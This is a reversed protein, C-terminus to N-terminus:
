CSLYWLQRSTPFDFLRSLIMLTEVPLLYFGHFTGECCRKAWEESKYIKYYKYIRGMLQTSTQSNQKAFLLLSFYIWCGLEFLQKCKKQPFFSALDEQLTPTYPCVLQTVASVALCALHLVLRLWEPASWTKQAGLVRVEGLFSSLTPESNVQTQYSSHTVGNQPPFVGLEKDAAAWCIIDDLSQKMAKLQFYKQWAEERVRIYSCVLHPPSHWSSVYVSMQPWQQWQRLEQPCLIVFPLKLVSFAEQLAAQWVHHGQLGNTPPLYALFHLQLTHLIQSQISAFYGVVNQGPKDGERERRRQSLWADGAVSCSDDPM